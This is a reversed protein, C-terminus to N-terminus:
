NIFNEEPIETEDIERWNSPSDQTGLYVLKSYTEGNTLIKGQDAELTIIQLNKTKVSSDM